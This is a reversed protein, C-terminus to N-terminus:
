SGSPIPRRTPPNPDVQLPIRREEVTQQAGRALTKARGRDCGEVGPQGAHSQEPVRREGVQGQGKTKVKSFMQFTVRYKKECFTKIEEATGPEQGGFDNSPFGCESATNVVLDLDPLQIGKRVIPAIM